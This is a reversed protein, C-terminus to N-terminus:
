ERYSIIPWKYTTQWWYQKTQVSVDMMAQLTGHIGVVQM